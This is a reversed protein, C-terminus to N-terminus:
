SPERSCAGHVAAVHGAWWEWQAMRSLGRPILGMREAMDSFGRGPDGEQHHVLASIPM